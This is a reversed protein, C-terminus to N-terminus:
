NKFYNNNESLIQNNEYEGNNPSLYQMTHYQSSTPIQVDISFKNLVNSIPISSEDSPNFCSDGDVRHGSYQPIANQFVLNGQRREYEQRLVSLKEDNSDLEFTNRRILSPQQINDALNVDKDNTQEM